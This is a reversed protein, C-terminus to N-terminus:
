KVRLISVVNNVDWKKQLSSFDVKFVDLEMFNFNEDILFTINVPTNDIDKYNIQVDGAKLLIDSDAREYLIRISGMGGDDMDECYLQNLHKPLSISLNSQDILEKIIYIEQQTLKRM